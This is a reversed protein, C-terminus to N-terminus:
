VCVGGLEGSEIYEKVKRVAANYLFVHGAMLVAKQAAAADILTQCQQVTQALPKEVLVHKGAQLAALTLEFHTQVPTAIVVADVTSDALVAEFATQQKAGPYQRGLRELRETQADCLTHLTAEPLAVFNRALNPGWHGLGVLAVNVM